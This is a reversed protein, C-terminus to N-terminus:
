DRIPSASNGDSVALKEIQLSEGTKVTWTQRLKRHYVVSDKRTQWGALQPSDAKVEGYWDIIFSVLFKHDAIPKIQIASLDHFNWVTQALLNNYWGAFDAHSALPPAGPFTLSMNKDDLHSLYFDPSSAHEFHTFWDYIFRRVDNSNTAALGNMPKFRKARAEYVALPEAQAASTQGPENRPKSFGQTPLGLTLAIAVGAIFKVGTLPQPHGIM